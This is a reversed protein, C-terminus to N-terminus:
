AVSLEALKVIDYYHLRVNQVRKKKVFVKSGHAPIIEGSTDNLLRFASGFRDRQTAPNPSAIAEAILRDFTPNDFHSEPVVADSTYVFNSIYSAHGRLLWGVVCPKVLFAKAYFTDVDQNVVNARVGVDKLMQKLIVAADVEGPGSPSTYITLDFGDSYGAAKLLSKAREPDRPWQKVGAPYFQDGPPVPVDASAVALGQYLTSVWKSRDVAM